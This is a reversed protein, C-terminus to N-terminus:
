ASDVQTGPEISLHNVRGLITV